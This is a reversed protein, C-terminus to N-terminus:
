LACTISTNSYLSTHTDYEKFQETYVEAATSCQSATCTVCSFLDKGEKWHYKRKCSDKMSQQHINELNKHHKTVESMQILCVFLATDQLNDLFTLDPFSESM